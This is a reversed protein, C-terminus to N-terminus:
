RFLYILLWVPLFDKLEIRLIKLAQSIQIEVTRRSINLKEAIEQNKLGVFRSLEFIERCRPPLKELAASFAVRLEIEIYMNYGCDDSSGSENISLLSFKEKIKNHKLYDLCRNKVSTFLYSKLSTKINLQNGKGWLSVFFDQVIDEVTTKNSIYKLSYTCLGSYYYNFIYDFVIKDNNRLGAILYKEEL